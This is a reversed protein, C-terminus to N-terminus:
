IVREISEESRLEILLQEVTKSFGPLILNPAIEALPQLVFRRQHARPHPLVLHLGHRLENKFGIIDLDLPRPENMVKKQQRGYERELSQLEKLLTEATASSRPRIAIVANLFDQSGPLCDVPSTKWWSSQLLPHDTLARLRPLVRAFVESSVGVNSGLAIFAYDSWDSSKSSAQM